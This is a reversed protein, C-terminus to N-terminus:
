PRVIRVVEGNSEGRVDGFEDLGKPLGEEISLILIDKGCRALRVLKGRPPVSQLHPPGGDSGFRVDGGLDVLNEVGM